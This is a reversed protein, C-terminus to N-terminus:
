PQTTDEDARWGAGIYRLWHMQAEPPHGALIQAVGTRTPQGTADVAAAIADLAVVAAQRAAQQHYAESDDGQGASPGCGLALVGEAASGALDGFWSQAMDPGGILTGSWGASRWGQLDYAAAEAEGTYIVVSTPPPTGTSAGGYLWRTAQPRVTSLAAALANEPGAIIISDGAEIARELLAEALAHTAPCLNTVGDLKAIPASGIMAINADALIPTATELTAATWPGLVAVVEPDRALIRAQAGAEPGYAEDNLAVLAVRYAGLTGDTNAVDIASRIEPLMAYGLPRGLGEFPAILGIKVVPAAAGIPVCGSLLSALLLLLLWGTPRRAM